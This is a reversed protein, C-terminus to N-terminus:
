ANPTEKTAQIMNQARESAPEKSFTDQWSKLVTHSTARDMDFEERLYPGAGFMNTEGSERLEDLYEFFETMEENTFDSM